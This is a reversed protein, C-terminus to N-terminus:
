RLMVEHTEVSWIQCIHSAAAVLDRNLTLLTLKHRACLQCLLADLANVSLGHSQSSAQFRAAAVHDSLEPWVQHLGSLKEQLEQQHEPFAALVEQLVAGTSVILCEGGLANCFARIEPPPPLM